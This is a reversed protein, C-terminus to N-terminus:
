KGRDSWRRLAEAKLEDMRYLKGEAFCNAGQVFAERMDAATYRKPQWGPPPQPIDRMKPRRLHKGKLYGDLTYDDPDIRKLPANAQGDIQGRKVGQCIDCVQHEHLHCDCKHRKM